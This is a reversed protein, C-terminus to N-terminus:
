VPDGVLYTDGDITVAATYGGILYEIDVVSGPGVANAIPAWATENSTRVYYGDRHDARVCVSGIAALRSAITM